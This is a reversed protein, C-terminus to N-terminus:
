VWCRRQCCATLLTEPLDENVFGESYRIFREVAPLSLKTRGSLTDPDMGAHQKTPTAAMPAPPKTRGSGHMRVGVAAGINDSRHAPALATHRRLLKPACSPKPKAASQSEVLESVVAHSHRDHLVAVSSAKSTILM